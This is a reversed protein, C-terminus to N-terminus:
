HSFAHNKSPQAICGSAGATRQVYRSDVTILNLREDSQSRSKALGGVRELDLALWLRM